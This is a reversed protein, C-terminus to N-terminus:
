RLVEEWQPMIHGETFRESAQLAAQGLRERLSPDNMLAILRRAFASEDQPDILFGNVGNTIIDRPGCPCAFAVIPLGYAQAELLVM